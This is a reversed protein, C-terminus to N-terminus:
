PNLSFSFPNARSIRGSYGYTWPSIKEFVEESPVCLVATSQSTKDQPASKPVPGYAGFILYRAGHAFSWIKANEWASSSLYAASIEGSTFRVALLARTSRSLLVKESLAVTVDGHTIAAAVSNDYFVTKTGYKGALQAIEAAIYSEEEDTPMPVLVTDVRRCNLLKLFAGACRRSPTTLILTDIATLYHESLRKATSYATQSSGDGIFIVAASRSSVLTIADSQSDRVADLTVREATVADYIHVGGVFVAASVAFPVLAYLWNSVGRMIMVIIVAAFALMIPLVFPYGLSYLVSRQALAAAIDTCLESLARVAGAIIGCPLHLGFLSCVLLLPMLSLLCECIPTMVLTAIVTMPSVEGFYLWQLPLVFMIAGLSVAIEGPFKIIRRMLRRMPKDTIKQPIHAAPEAVLLLGLTAGFSLQLSVDYIATPSVLVILGVAAFLATIRDGDRDLLVASYSIALMVAARLASAIFGTLAVYFAALAMCLAYRSKSGLGLWMLFRELSGVIISLHLGSLALLHMAGIYTFDREVKGLNTRNGLFLADALSASEKDLYLTLKASLTNRLKSLFVTVGEGHTCFVPEGVTNATFAAGKSLIETRSADRYSYFEGLPCFEIDAEIIDGVNFATAGDSSILGRARESKGDRSNIQVGYTAGFATRSEVSVVTANIHANTLGDYRAVYIDHYAFSTLTMAMTLAALIIVFSAADINCIRKVGRAKLLPVAILSSIMAAFIVAIKIFGPRMACLASILLALTIILAFPRRRYFNM